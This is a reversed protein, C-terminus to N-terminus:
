WTSLFVITASSPFTLEASADSVTIHDIARQVCELMWLSWNLTVISAFNAVAQCGKILLCLRIIWICTVVVKIMCRWQLVHKSIQNQGVGYLKSHQACGKTLLCLRIIRLVYVLRSWTDGSCFSMNTWKIWDWEMYNLTSCMVVVSFSLPTRSILNQLERGHSHECHMWSRVDFSAPCGLETRCAVSHHNCWCHSISADKKCM